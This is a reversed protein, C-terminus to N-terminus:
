GTHGREKWPRTVKTIFYFIGPGYDGRMRAIVSHLISLGQLLFCAIAAAFTGVCVFTHSCVDEM